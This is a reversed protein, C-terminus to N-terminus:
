GRCPRRNSDAFTSNRRISTRELLGDLHATLRDVEPGNGHAFLRGNVIICTTSIGALTRMADRLGVGYRRFASFLRVLLTLLNRPDVIEPHVVGGYRLQVSRYLPGLAEMTRRREAFVREGRGGTVLLDGEFRGCCGSSSM